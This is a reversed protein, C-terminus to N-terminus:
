GFIEQICPLLKFSSLFLFLIDHLVLSMQHRVDKVKVVFQFCSCVYVTVVLVEDDTVGLSSIYVLCTHSISKEMMSEVPLEVWEKIGCKHSVRVGTAVVFSSMSCEPSEVGECSLHTLVM